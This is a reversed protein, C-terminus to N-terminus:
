RGAPTVLAFLLGAGLVLGVAVAFGSVSGRPSVFLVAAAAVWLLVMM